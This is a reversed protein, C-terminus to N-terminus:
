RTARDQEEQARRLRQIALVGTPDIFAGAYTLAEVLAWVRSPTSRPDDHERVAPAVQTPAAETPATATLQNM